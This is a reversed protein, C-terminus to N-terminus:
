ARCQSSFFKPNIKACKKLYKICNIILQFNDEILEKYNFEVIPINYENALNIERKVWESQFISKTKILIVFDSMKLENEVRAQKDNSDNDLLDIYVHCDDLIAVQLKKLVEKSILGDRITYSIFIKFLKNM